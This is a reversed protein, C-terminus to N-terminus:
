PVNRLTPALLKSPEFLFDHPSEDWARNIPLVEGSILLKFFPISEDFLGQLFVM